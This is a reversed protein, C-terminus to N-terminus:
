AADENPLEKGEGLGVQNFTVLSSKLDMKKM